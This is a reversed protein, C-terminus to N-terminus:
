HGCSRQSARANCYFSSSLRPHDLSKVSHDLLIKEFDSAGAIGYEKSLAKFAATRKAGKPMACAESWEESACMMSRRKLVEGLTANWLQRGFEFDRELRKAGASDITLPLELVFCLNSLQDSM